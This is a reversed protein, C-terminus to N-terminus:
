SAPEPVIRTVIYFSERATVPDQTVPTRFTTGTFEHSQELLGILAAASRATGGIQVEDGQIQLETLSTDDPLIQTLKLLLTSVPVTARKRDVIFFRQKRTEAVQRQLSVAARIAAFDQEMAAAQRQMRALPIYIAVAALLAAAIALGTTVRSAKRRGAALRAPPLMNGSAPEDGAGAVDVRDIALGLREADTIASDVIPRPVVTLEADLRHAPADRGTIRASLYVQEATFPTHRDLQYSIVERLNSEAALPLAIATRLAREAPLRLGVALAGQDLATALDHRRLIDHLAAAPDAGPNLTVYGLDLGLRQRADGGEIVLAARTAELLVILRRDGASWRERLRAPLM